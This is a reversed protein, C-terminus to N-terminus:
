SVTVNVTSIAYTAEQLSINKWTHCVDPQNFLVCHCCCDKQSVVCKFGECQAKLGGEPYLGQEKIIWEMREFWGQITAHNELFDFSQPTKESNLWINQM